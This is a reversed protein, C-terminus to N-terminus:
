LIWKNRGYCLFIKSVTRLMICCGSFPGTEISWGRYFWFRFGDLFGFLRGRFSFRFGGCLIFYNFEKRIGFWSSAMVFGYFDFRIFFDWFRPRYRFSRFRVLTSGIRCSGNRFSYRTIFSSSVVRRFVIFLIHNNVIISISPHSACSRTWATTRTDGSCPTPRGLLAHHGRWVLDDDYFLVM